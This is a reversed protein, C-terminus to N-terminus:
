LIRLIKVSTRGKKTNGTVSDLRIRGSGKLSVTDGEDVPAANDAVEEWNVSVRGAKVLQAAKTRSLGFGAAVVCDLRLSAVTANIERVKQEPIIVEERDIIDASVSNNGVRNLNLCIYDAIERAAVVDSFGEGVLIDGIKERKIGLNMLAGLYDRHSLNKRGRNKIRIFVFPENEPDSEPDSVDCGRSHKKKCSFVPSFVAIVREAGEYGGTFYYEIEPNKHTIKELIKEALSRRAPDMFDTHSARGTKLAREIGDMLRSAFLKDEANKLIGPLETRLDM